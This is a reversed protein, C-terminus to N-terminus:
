PVAVGLLDVEITGPTNGTWWTPNGYIDVTLADTGEVYVPHSFERSTGGGTLFSAPMFQGISPPTSVHVRLKNTRSDYFNLGLWAGPDTNNANVSNKVTTSIYASKILYHGPGPGNMVVSGLQKYANTADAGVVLTGNWSYPFVLGKIQSPVPEDQGPYVRFGEFGAFVDGPITLGGSNTFEFFVTTGRRIVFPAPLGRQRAIKAWPLGTTAHDPPLATMDALANIDGAQRMWQVDNDAPKIQCTIRPDIPQDSGFQGAFLRTAYFDADKNVTVGVVFNASTLGSQASYGIEYGLERRGKAIDTVIVGKM